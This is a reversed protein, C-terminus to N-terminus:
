DAPAAMWADFRALARRRAAEDSEMGHLANANDAMSVFRKLIAAREVLRQPVFREIMRDSTNATLSKLRDAAHRRAELLRAPGHTELDSVILALRRDRDSSADVIETRLSVDDRLREAAVKGFLREMRALAKERGLARNSYAFVTDRALDLTSASFFGSVREGPDAPSVAALLTELQELSAPCPERTGEGTGARSAEDTRVWAEIEDVDLAGSLVTQMSGASLSGLLESYIVALKGLNASDELMAVAIKVVLTPDDKGPEDLVALLRTPAVQAARRARDRLGKVLRTEGGFAPEAGPMELRDLITTLAARLRRGDGLTARSLGEGVGALDHLALWFPTLVMAVLMARKESRDATEIENSPSSVTDMVSSISDWVSRTIQQGLPSSMVNEMTKTGLTLPLAALRTLDVASDALVTNWTADPDRSKGLWTQGLILDTPVRSDANAKGIEVGRSAVFSAAEGGGSVQQDLEYVVQEAADAGPVLGKAAATAAMASKTAIQAGLVAARTAIGGGILATGVLSRGAQAIMELSGGGFERALVIDDHNVFELAVQRGKQQLDV